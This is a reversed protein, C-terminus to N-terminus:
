AAPLEFYFTSGQNVGASEAWVRGNHAEVIMKGVYLGLGTGKIAKAKSSADSGRSYRVFLNPIEESELGLGTDTVGFRVMQGVKEVKVTISGQPTYKISNDVYNMMVQQLKEKDAQVRPLALVPLEMSLNLGKDKAPITLQEVCAAALASLDVLEFNYKIKGAEIRSLNLFDQIMNILNENSTYIKDLIENQAPAIPGFDNEKLMSVYGKVITLPTRLQHSVISVFDSKAQEVEKEHTIDSAISVIFMLKGYEDFIPVSNLRVFCHSGDRRTNQYEAMFNANEKIVRAKFQREIDVPMLPTFDPGSKRGIVERTAFGTLHEFARNVYLFTLNADNFAIADYVNQVALKFKNLDVKQEENLIRERELRRLLTLVVLMCVFVLLVLLYIAIFFPANQQFLYIYKGM